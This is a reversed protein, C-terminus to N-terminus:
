QQDVSADPLWDIRVASLHPLALRVLPNTTFGQRLYFGLPSQYPSGDAKTYREHDTAWGALPQGKAKLANLLAAGQGRGQMSRHIIIAFWREGDRIFSLAWGLVQGEDNVAFLHTKDTLAALYTDFDAPQAYRLQAPYEGNWLQLVEAKQTESLLTTEIIRV